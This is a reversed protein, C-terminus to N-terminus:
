MSGIIVTSIMVQLASQKKDKQQQEGKTRSTFSSLNFLNKLLSEINLNM